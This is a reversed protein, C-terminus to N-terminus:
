GESYVKFLNNIFKKFEIKNKLFDNEENYSILSKNLNENNKNDVEIKKFNIEPRNYTDFTIMPVNRQIM